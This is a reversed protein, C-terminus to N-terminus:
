QGEGNAIETDLGTQKSVESGGLAPGTDQNAVLEAMHADYEARTVVKVNFLMRSHYLGCLEACRGEYTGLRTPTIGFHNDRGPIVDMKFLFDPVWFSHIVDPSYLHFETKEGKVLWLTPREATTGGEHVVEGQGTSTFKKQDEDYTLNYNFTWSWQQGVVTVTRQPQDFNHLSADQTKVTFFFLVVVVMIPAITYFIEIPLNYRTQVPIEDPSRRRFRIVAYFILGWVAVGIIMAALWSWKWLDDIHPAEKTAPIPMALRKIQDKDDSSCGSLLLVASCTIAGFAVTRARKPLGLSVFSGKREDVERFRVHRV